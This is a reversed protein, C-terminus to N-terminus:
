STAIVHELSLSPKKNDIQLQAKEPCDSFYTELGDASFQESIHKLRDLDFHLKCHIVDM